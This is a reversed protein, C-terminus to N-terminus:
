LKHTEKSLSFIKVANDTSAKRIEDESHGTISSLESVVYKLFAPENRQSSSTMNFPKMFPADSELLLRDLPLHKIVSKVYASRRPDTVWGTIGIYYGSKLYTEMQQRNGTFCHVIGSVPYQRVISIFDSFADREHLLVPKNLEQAVKLQHHFISRQVELLPKTYDLGCEGIAVVQSQSAIDKFKTQDTLDFNDKANYPHIGATCYLYGSYDQTLKLAAQSKLISSGNVIIKQIDADRARRLVAPLDPFRNSTLDAGIDIM